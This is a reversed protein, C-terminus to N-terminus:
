SDRPSPSTYLLCDELLARETEKRRSIDILSGALGGLEGEYTVAVGRVRYWKWNQESNLRIRPEVALIESKGEKVAAIAELFEERDEEHVYEENEFFNPIDEPSCDFFEGVRDTFDLTASKFDWDWIGENSAELALDLRELANAAM